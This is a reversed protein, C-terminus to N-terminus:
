ADEEAHHAAERPTYVHARLAMTLDLVIEAVLRQRRCLLVIMVGQAVLWLGMAVFVLTEGTM